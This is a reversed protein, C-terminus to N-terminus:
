RITSMAVLSNPKLAPSSPRTTQRGGSAEGVKRIRILSQLNRELSSANPDRLTLALTPCWRRLNKKCRLSPLKSCQESFPRLKDVESKIAANDQALDANRNLQPTFAEGRALDDKMTDFAALMALQHTGHAQM